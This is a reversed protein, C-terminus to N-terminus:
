EAEQDAEERPAEIEFKALRVPLHSADLGTAREARVPLDETEHVLPGGPHLKVWLQITLHV